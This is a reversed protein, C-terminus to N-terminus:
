INISLCKCDVNSYLLIKKECKEKRLNQQKLKSIFSVFSHLLCTFELLKRPCKSSKSSTLSTWLFIKRWNQTKM